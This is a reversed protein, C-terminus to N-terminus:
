DALITKLYHKEENLKDLPSLDNYYGRPKTNQKNLINKLHINADNLTKFKNNSSFSKRRIFEVGKEVNGKENGKAINCFRHRNIKFIM